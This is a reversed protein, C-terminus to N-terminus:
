RAPTRERLSKKRREVVKMIMEIMADWDERSPNWDSMAVVNAMASMLAYVVCQVADRESLDAMDHLEFMDGVFTYLREGALRNFDRKMTAESM